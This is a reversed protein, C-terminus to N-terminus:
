TESKGKRVKECCNTQESLPTFGVKEHGLPVHIPSNYVLAAWGSKANSSMTHGKETM